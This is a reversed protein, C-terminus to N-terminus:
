KNKTFNFAKMMKKFIDTNEMVGTFAEAGPGFAFVPVMTATHEDTTFSGEVLGEKLDGANISYGGTEHDATIIVLTERDMEAFDLIANVTRDFDLVESVLTDSTNDHCAWDIQSGEVMMFFGNDNKSLLDIVKLSGTKLMDGRGNLYYPPHKEYLLGAIKGDTIVNLEEMSYAMQYNRALLSDVLNLSDERKTFHDLGGGIFVDIDTKLFDYAIEEYNYRLTNNAMFSAPTAHTVACSVVMGTAKQHQEAYKLISSVNVGDPTMGIMKRNTKFGTALATGAAGSDTILADLCYTFAFGSYKCREVSLHGKNAVYASYLQTTGMGDGIMLIINKPAKTPKQKPETNCAFLLFSAIFLTFILLRNKM